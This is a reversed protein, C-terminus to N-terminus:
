EAIYTGSVHFFDVSQLAIPSNHDFPQNQGNTGIYSLEIINSGESVEGHIVYNNNNSNDHLHGGNLSAHYKANFPLTMYYQGSGFDTINSMDVNVRFYVLPGTKVYSGDFMPTSSFTPQVAGDGMTGGQVSYAVETPVGSVGPIYATTQVTDDAFTIDEVAVHPLQAQAIGDIFFVGDAITLATVDNTVSDNIYITGEGIHVSKWRYDANGVTYINDVSPILDEAIASLDPSDGPDGKPGQPGPEGNSPNTFRSM